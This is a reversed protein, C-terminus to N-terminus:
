STILPLLGSFDAQINFYASLIKGRKKYSNLLVDKGMERAEVNIITYV